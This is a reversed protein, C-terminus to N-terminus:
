CAKFYGLPPIRSPGGRVLKATMYNHVIGHDGVIQHRVKQLYDFNDYYISDPDGDLPLLGTRRDFGFAAWFMQKVGKGCRLAHIDRKLIQQRPSNFTWIHRAGIGREVSCEDSWIVKKFDEATYNAYTRAWRLRKEANEETIEPRKCQKWKQMHLTRFLRQVTRVSPSSQVAQSLERM